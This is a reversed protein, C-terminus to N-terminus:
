KRREPVVSQAVNHAAMIPREAIPARASVAGASEGELPVSEGESMTQHWSVPRPRTARLVRQRQVPATTLAASAFRM